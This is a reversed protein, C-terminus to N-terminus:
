VHVMCLLPRLYQGLMRQSSAVLIGTVAVKLNCARVGPSVQADVHVWTHIYTHIYQCLTSLLMIVYVFKM